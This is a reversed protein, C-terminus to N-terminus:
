GKEGWLIRKKVIKEYHGEIIKPILSFISILANVEAIDAIAM